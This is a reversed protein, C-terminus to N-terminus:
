SIEGLHRPIRRPGKELEGADRALVSTLLIEEEVLVIM